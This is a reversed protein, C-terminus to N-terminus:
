QRELFKGRSRQLFAFRGPLTAGRFTDCHGAKFQDKADDQEHRTLDWRELVNPASHPHTSSKQDFVGTM